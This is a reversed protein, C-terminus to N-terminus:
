VAKGPEPVMGAILAGQTVQQGETVAVKDIVGDRGAHLVHEMKMAEVVAIRDGKAVSDRERVFLKAVKGNIPARIVDGAEGDDVASADYVPRGIEVQALDDIVFVEDAGDTRVVAPVAPPGAQLGDWVPLAIAVDVRDAHVAEWTASVQREVGAITVPFTLTRQGGLQFADRTGWPDHALTLKRAGGCLLRQVGRSVAEAHVQSQTLGALERGILGTDMDGARVDRHSLLNRLFRANTRPGAVVLAQLGAVIKDLADRRDQGHAILKSIMSDYYPSVEDGQRVGTELRIDSLRESEFAVIRGISPMFGNGPDEACLRAEIAHGRMRIQSQTKPLREGAAIRFQWEVLDLGTIEETVPHEVQLRTNMEIFHWPADAGLEGGEVLFEVTGAGEYGVAKALRVAAETMKARLAESMGPAPAEEIVKQNRRQLSCDREFLHVANGHADGFVQVEIHRPRVIVKEVLVRADGFAGQAERQASELASPFDAANDVLRMGRGGGGAVAKIMVPYGIRAAEKQLTKADQKDGDYGPVVPVGAARAISKAAAKGGLKRMADGSPGIFKIRARACADAFDANEALFGYGPHICDAGTAQAAALIGDIRLYSEPAPSPGIHVAEDAEAVHLARADADSYVAVTAIGMRRATRIIRCAIEGRNAILVKELM